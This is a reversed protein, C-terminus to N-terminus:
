KAAARLPVDEPLQEKSGGCAMPVIASDDVLQEKGGGCASAQM